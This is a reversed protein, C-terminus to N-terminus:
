FQNKFSNIKIPDNRFIWHDKKKKFKLKLEDRGKLRMLFAIPTFIGFFITGLVLPSVIMGLILGFRMWLKNLPLLLDAKILTIFFFIVGATTFIRAWLNSSNLYFYLTFILFILTFFYGFKKNSPLAIESFKM